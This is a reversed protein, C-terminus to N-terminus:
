CGAGLRTVDVRRHAGRGRRGRAEEDGVVLGVHQLRQAQQELAFPVLQRDCPRRVIYEGRQLRGALGRQRAVVEVAWRHRVLGAQELRRAIAPLTEGAAVTFSVGRGVPKNRYGFALNEIALM